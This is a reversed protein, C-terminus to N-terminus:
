WPIALLDIMVMTIVLTTAKGLIASLLVCHFLAAVMSGRIAITIIIITIIRIIIIIIIIIYM